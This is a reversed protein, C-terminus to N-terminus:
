ALQMKQIIDNKKVAIHGSVCYRQPMIFVNNRM